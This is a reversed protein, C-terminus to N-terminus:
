GYALRRFAALVRPDAAHFTTLTLGGARVVLRPAILWSLGRPAILKIQTIDALRVQKSWLGSQRIHQGDIGTRSTLIGAYSTGIVAAALGMFLRTSSDWQSWAGAALVEWAGAALMAMCASALLKMATSFSAGEVAEPPEPAATDTPSM